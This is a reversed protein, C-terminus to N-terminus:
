EKPKVIKIKKNTESEEAEDTEFEPEPSKGEIIDFLREREIELKQYKDM